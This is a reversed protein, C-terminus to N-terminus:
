PLRRRPRVMFVIRRHGLRILERTAAMTATAKEPGTAAIPLGGRRGFIAFSPEPQAAFWELV